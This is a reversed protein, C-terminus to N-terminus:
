LTSLPWQQTRCVCMWNVRGTQDSIINTPRWVLATMAKWCDCLGCHTGRWTLMTLKQQCIWEAITMMRVWSSQLNLRTMWARYEEYAQLVPSSLSHELTRFMRLVHIVRVAVVAMWLPNEQPPMSAQCFQLSTEQSQNVKTMERMQYQRPRLSEQPLCCPDRVAHLQRLASSFCRRTQPLRLIRILHPLSLQKQPEFLSVIV